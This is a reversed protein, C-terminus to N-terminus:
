ENGHEKVVPDLAAGAAKIIIACPFTRDRCRIEPWEQGSADLDHPVIEM